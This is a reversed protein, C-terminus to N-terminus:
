LCFGGDIVLESGTVFRAEDSALYVVGHAIDAPEGLFGIPHRSVLQTMAAESDDAEDVWKQMQTTLIYGPHVSNCRVPYGQEACHLAVSKTLLTVGGKAASYATAYSAARLGHVSSINVISGGGERLLDLALKCGTFVSDLNFQVATRFDATSLQEINGAGAGGANNVLIHLGGFQKRTAELVNRWASEDCVDLGLGLANAGIRDATRAAGEADIDTVVVRAGEAALAEAVAAGIGDAAGTILAIKNALRPSSSM